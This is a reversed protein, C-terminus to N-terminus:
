LTPVLFAIGREIHEPMRSIDNLSSFIGIYFLIPEESSYYISSRVAVKKNIRYDIGASFFHDRSSHTEITSFLRTQRLSYQAQYFWSTTVHEKFQKEFQIKDFKFIFPNYNSEYLSGSSNNDYNLGLQHSFQNSSFPLPIGFNLTYAQSSDKTDRFTDTNLYYRAGFNIGNASREKSWRTKPFVLSVGKQFSIALSDRNFDDLDFQSVSLYVMNNFGFTTNFISSTYNINLHIPNLDLKVMIADDLVARKMLTQNNTYGIISGIHCLFRTDNRQYRLGYKFIDDYRFSASLSATKFPKQLVIGPYKTSLIATYPVSATVVHAILFFSVIFWKIM